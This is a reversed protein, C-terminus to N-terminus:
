GLDMNYNNSNLLWNLGGQAGIYVGPFTPRPDWMSQAQAALPLSAAVAATLLVAPKM